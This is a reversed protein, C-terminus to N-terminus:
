GPYPFCLVHMGPGNSHTGNSGFGPGDPNPFKSPPVSQCGQSGAPPMSETIPALWHIQPCIVPELGCGPGGVGGLWPGGIWSSGFVPRIRGPVGPPNGM